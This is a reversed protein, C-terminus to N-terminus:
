RSSPRDRRSRRPRPLPACRRAQLRHACLRERRPAYSATSISARSRKMVSYANAPAARWRARDLVDIRERRRKRARQDGLQEHLSGVLVARRRHRVAAGAFAVVLHADLEAHAREIWRQDATRRQALRRERTGVCDGERALVANRDRVRDLLRIRDVGIEPSARDLGAHEFIGPVRRRLVREGPRTRRRRRRRKRPSRRRM